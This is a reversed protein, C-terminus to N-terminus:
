FSSGDVETLRNKICNICLEEGDFEYLTDEEGCDDCYYHPVNLNPCSTGMCPLDCCVCENEYKCM